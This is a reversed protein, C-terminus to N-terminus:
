GPKRGARKLRPDTEPREAKRVGGDLREGRHRRPRRAAPAGLGASVLAGRLLRTPALFLALRGKSSAPPPQNLRLAGAGSTSWRKGARQAPASRGRGRGTRRRPLVHLPESSRGHAQRGRRRSPAAGGPDARRESGLTRGPDLERAPEPVPEELLLHRGPGLTSAKTRRGHRGPLVVAGPLTRCSRERRHSRGPRPQHPSEAIRKRSGSRRQAQARSCRSRPLHELGLTDHPPESGSRLSTAPTRRSTGPAHLRDLDLRQESPELLRGACASCLASPHAPEPRESLFPVRQELEPPHLEGGVPEGGRAGGELLHPGRAWATGPSPTGFSFRAM